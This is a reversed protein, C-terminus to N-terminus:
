FNYRQWIGPLWNQYFVFFRLLFSGIFSKFRDIKNIKLDVKPGLIDIYEFVKM